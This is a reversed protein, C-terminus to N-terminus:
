ARSLYCLAPNNYTQLLRRLYSREGATMLQLLQEGCYGEVAARRVLTRRLIPSLQGSTLTEPHPLSDCISLLLVFLGGDCEPLHLLHRLEAAFDDRGYCRVLAAALRSRNAWSSGFLLKLLHIATQGSFLAVIEYSEATTLRLKDGRLLRLAYEMDVGIYIRLRAYVERRHVARGRSLITRSLRCSLPLRSALILVRGRGVGLFLRMKLWRDLRQTCIISRLLPERCMTFTSRVVALAELLASHAQRLRWLPFSCGSWDGAMRRLIVRMYLIVLRSRVRRYRVLVRISLWLAMSLLLVVGSVCLSVPM